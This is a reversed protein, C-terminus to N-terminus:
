PLRHIWEGLRQLARPPITHPGAFPEFTVDLGRQRLAERLREAIAFPLIPDSDGHSQFVPTGKRAPMLPTWESEAIM